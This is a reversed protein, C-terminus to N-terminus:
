RRGRSAGLAQGVAAPPRPTATPRTLPSEVSATPQQDASQPATWAEVDTIRSYSGLASTVWIRIKSTALPSFTVQQWVLTNNVIAGGPVDTWASGTWYQIEFNELGYLSFTMSPTPPSPATYNDQVTFVDVEGITYTGAFDVELWDPFVNPTADNWGGGNGWNLGARNGTIADAPLYNASYTSSAVATAGNTALAVNTPTFGGTPNVTIPVGSSAVGTHGMTDTAVATLTYAGAAVNTWTFSFPATTSTGILAGNASFAVSAVTGGSETATVTIPV